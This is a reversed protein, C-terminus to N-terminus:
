INKCKASALTELLHVPFLGAMPPPSTVLDGGNDHEAAAMRPSATPFLVHSSSRAIPALGRKGLSLRPSHPAYNGSRSMKPLALGNFAPWLSPFNQHPSPGASGELPLNSNEQPVLLGM